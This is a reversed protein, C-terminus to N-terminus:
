YLQQTARALRLMFASPPFTAITDDADDNDFYDHDDQIFFVPTSRFDTGYVPVIQPGAALKLVTENTDGFVLSSRSFTGALRRAEQSAGQRPGGIPSLLDWYVHDGNAVVADPQFTLARRLLRSRIATPLFTLGEHGGACTYFLVRFREPRADAPPFTSLEWPACLSRGDAGRLSLTYRRGPQLGAARFQWFEGKTDNMRGRVTASGIRLGPAGTLPRAFSAKILVDTDSVTPLLHRVQGSDSAPTAPPVGHDALRDAPLSALVTAGFSGVLFRRRDVIM